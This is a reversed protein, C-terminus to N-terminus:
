HTIVRSERRKDARAIANRIRRLSKPGLGRIALLSSDSALAVQQPDSYGARLLVWPFVGLESYFVVLMEPSMRGQALSDLLKKYRCEHSM